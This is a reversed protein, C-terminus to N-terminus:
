EEPVDTPPVAFFCQGRERWGSEGEPHGPHYDAMWFLTYSRRGLADPEGRIEIRHPPRTAM